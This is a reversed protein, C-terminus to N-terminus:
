VTRRQQSIVAFSELYKIKEMLKVNDERYQEVEVFLQKEKRQYECVCDELESVRARFRDRQSVVIEIM